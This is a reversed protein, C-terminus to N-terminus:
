APYEERAGFAFRRRERACTMCLSTCSSHAWAGFGMPPMCSDMVLESGHSRISGAIRNRDDGSAERGQIRSVGRSGGLLQPDSPIRASGNPFVNSVARPRSRRRCRGRQPRRPRRRARRIMECKACSISWRGSSSSRRSGRGCIRGPLLSCVNDGCQELCSSFGSDSAATRPTRSCQRTEIGRGPGVRM